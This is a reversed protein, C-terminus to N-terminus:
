CSGPVRSILEIVAQRIKGGIRVEVEEERAHGMLAQALPESVHIVGIEPKHESRSLRVRVTRNPDDNYRLVALDGADAVLSTPDGEDVVIETITAVTDAFNTGALTVPEKATMAAAESTTGPTITQGVPEGLTKEVVDPEERVGVERFETWAAEVPEAGLPEIGLRDLTRKLDSLCGEPDVVWSSGWCRWFIWGFRELATQRGFDAAWRDPGHWQDGDLEIALRSDNAGEVVFDIRFGAIPVQARLRYGM